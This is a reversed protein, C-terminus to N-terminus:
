RSGRGDRIACSFSAARVFRVATVEGETGNEALERAQAASPAMVTLHRQQGDEVITVAYENM